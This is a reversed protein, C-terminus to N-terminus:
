AIGASSFRGAFCPRARARPHANHLRRKRTDHLTGPLRPRQAHSVPDETAERLSENVEERQRKLAENRARLAALAERVVDDPAAFVGTAVHRQIENWIDPSLDVSM